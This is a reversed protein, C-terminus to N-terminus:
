SLQGCLRINAGIIVCVSVGLQGPDCWVELTPNWLCLQIELFLDYNEDAGQGGGWRWGPVHPVGQGQWGVSAAAM